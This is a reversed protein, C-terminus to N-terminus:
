VEFDLDILSSAVDYRSGAYGKVLLFADLGNFVEKDYGHSRFSAHFTRPPDDKSQTVSMTNPVLTIGSGTEYATIYEQLKRVITANYRDKIHSPLKDLNIKVKDETKVTTSSAAGKYGTYTSSSVPQFSHTITGAPATPPGVILMTDYCLVIVMGAQGATFTHVAPGSRIDTIRPNNASVNYRASGGLGSTVSQYGSGTIRLDCKGTGTMSLVLVSFPEIAFEISQGHWWLQGPICVEVTCNTNAGTALVETTINSRPPASGQHPIVRAKRGVTGTISTSAGVWTGDVFM